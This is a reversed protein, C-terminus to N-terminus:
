KKLSLYKIQAMQINVISNSVNVMAAAKKYTDDTPNDCLSEFVEMLKNSVKQTATEAAIIEVQLPSTKEPLSNNVEKAKLEFDRKDRLEGRPEMTSVFSKDVKLDEKKVFEIDDMFASLESETKVFSSSDTMIVAKYNVLKTSKVKYVKGCYRFSKGNLKNITKQM